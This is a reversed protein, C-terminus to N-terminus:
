LATEKFIDSQPTVISGNFVIDPACLDAVFPAVESAKQLADPNEGPFARGRLATRVPGPDFLNCRIDSNAIEAAYTLVAANLAAKSAAYPGFFPKNARSFDSTLFVVRGAESRRLLPDMSRLLRYNAVVNVDFVDSFDKPKLHALPTSVGFVGANGVLADIRGFRQFLALGLNDIADFDRLDLPVLTSSSGAAKIEDDLEELGGVTRAVAVIHFGRAALVKAVAYGIGRSAGTVVAVPVESSGPQVGNTADDNAPLSPNTM